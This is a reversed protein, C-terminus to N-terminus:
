KAVYANFDLDNVKHWTTAMVTISMAETQAAMAEAVEKGFATDQLMGCVARRGRKDAFYKIAARTMDYYSAFQAFKLRHYPEYMSRAATLPFVNPVNKAFQAPMNANNLPTGGDALTIFVDDNNLLKNMAQVARPVSSQSDEVIFKITRGHVGGRANADDFVMRIADSNNIGQLVGPGSLDTISGIVIETNTVGRVLQARAGSSLVLLSSAALAPIVLWMCILARPPYPGM